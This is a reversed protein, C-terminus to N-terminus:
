KMITKPKRYHDFFGWNKEPEVVNSSGKWPEDFAEFYFIIVEEQESWKHMETIYRRQNMQNAYEVPIVNGDSATPWGAETIIVQKTSYRKVTNIYDTQSLAISEEVDKAMWAPYVHISIFDVVNAVDILKNHWYHVNDCYTVPVNTRQKLQQVFYLVRGPSVLNENWEPVAENGASVAIVYEEYENVLEIVQELQEQNYRINRAIERVTFDGGWSCDPNSIEGLLDIGLLVKLDIGEQDIVQLATKAHPGSDYMRIYDWEKELLRLDCLVEDYSPYIKEVPSQGERYGSYCIAKGYQIIDM